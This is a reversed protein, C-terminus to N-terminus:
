NRLNLLNQSDMCFLPQLIPIVIAQVNAAHKQERIAFHNYCVDQRRDNCIVKVNGIGFGRKQM